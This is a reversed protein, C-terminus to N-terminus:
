GHEIVLRSLKLYDSESVFQEAIPSTDITPM